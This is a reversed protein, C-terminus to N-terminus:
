QLAAEILNRISPLIAIYIEALPKDARDLLAVSKERWSQPPKRRSDLFNLADLGYRCLEAVTESLPRIENLLNSQEIVDQLRPNNASWQTLLDRIEMSAAEADPQSALRRDVLLAFKRGVESEPRIVDVLRNLPTDSYYTRAEKRISLVPPKILDAFVLLPLADMNGALRQMRERYLAHHRLGLGTLERDIRELRRYLDPVDNVSAPSWLREAIAAARPWIRSEINEPNVFEGWMCAEGGLIRKRESETLEAAADGLPDVSYHFAAPRMHDLYYGRSLIANYGQRVTRSLSDQRWSQVIINKPLKPHLIEDWGIMKKGHKTLIELMRRNFYAQLEHNDSLGQRKKFARISESANWQTAKVEDGGIHFYEDPFLDAMEGVFADLFEYLGENSPDMCPEFVGWRREIEYSGAAAALEPYGVLWSTSHGPLDFEPVIRIGRNRAYEVIDRVEDQSYYKGDSGLEHLKPFVKSEIRFGQDDSLHWHLVNMKVAAMADLNRKIMDVPEFHRSVDILLGRWEFRPLDAIKLAPISFSGADVDVLQLFTEMGRFVGVPTSASLCARNKSIELKYSEDTRVSQVPEGTCKYLIEFAANESTGVPASAMPIGTRKQLRSLFRVAAAELEPTNRDKLAVRFNENIVFKGAGMTLESPVPLLHLGSVGSMGCAPLQLLSLWLAAAPLFSRRGPTNM